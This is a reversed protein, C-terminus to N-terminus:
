SAPRAANARADLEGYTIRQDGFVLATADPARDVWAEFLEHLVFHQPWNFLPSSLESLLEVEDAAGLLSVAGVTKADSALVRDFARALVAARAPSFLRADYFLTYTGAVVALHLDGLPEGTGFGVDYLPHRAPDSSPAIAIPAIDAIRACSAAFSEAPDLAIALAGGDTGIVFDRTGALKGVFVAFAGLVNSGPARGRIAQWSPERLAPRALDCPLEIRDAREAGM